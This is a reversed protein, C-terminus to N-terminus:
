FRVNEYHIITDRNYRITVRITIVNNDKINKAKGAAGNNQM